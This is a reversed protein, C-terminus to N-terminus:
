RRDPSDARHGATGATRPRPRGLRGGAGPAACGSQRALRAAPARKGPLAGPGSHRHHRQRRRDRKAGGGPGGGDLHRCAGTRRSGLRYRHLPRRQNTRCLRTRTGRVDRLLEEVRIGLDQIRQLDPGAIKLGLPSRMGTALMDIRGRVPMTWANAVGPFKMAADFKAILEQQSMRRPWQERPKLVVVTELMSLPAVDTSTDARGAKGLVHAVEPLSKLRSDTLQLLRKAETISIASVTSPMYLLVGEDLPPVFEAGLKRYVPVTAIAAVLVVAAVSGKHRLAYQLAPQYIRILLRSLPHHEERRIKSRLASNM